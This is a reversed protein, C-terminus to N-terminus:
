TSAESYGAALSVAVAVVGAAVAFAWFGAWAAAGLSTTAAYTVAVAALGGGVPVLFPLNSWQGGANAYEVAYGWLNGVTFRLVVVAFLGSAVATVAEFPTLSTLEGFGSLARRLSGVAGLLFAAVDLFYWPRLRDHLRHHLSM